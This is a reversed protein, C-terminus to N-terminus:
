EYKSIMVQITFIANPIKQSDDKIIPSFFSFLALRFFFFFFYTPHTPSYGICRDAEDILISQAVVALLENLNRKIKNWITM